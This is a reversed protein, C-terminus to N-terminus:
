KRTCNQERCAVTAVDAAPVGFPPFSTWERAEQFHKLAWHNSLFALDQWPIEEWTFLRVELSESGAAFESSLMEARYIMHVQGARPISYLGLLSGIRLRTRAEEWAERAAGQEATERLEMFGAPITWYGQRPEIGRKCLLFRGQWTAVAGVIIKPNEYHIWGCDSCIMRERDDGEPIQRCFRYHQPDYSM